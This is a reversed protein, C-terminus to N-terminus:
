DNDLVLQLVDENITAFVDFYFIGGGNDRCSKLYHNFGEFVDCEKNKVMSLLNGFNDYVIFKYGISQFFNITEISDLLDIENYNIDYEFYISPKFSEILEKNALIIDFDSGDTDIKILEISGPEILNEILMEDLSKMKIITDSEDKESQLLRATGNSRIVQYNTTPKRGKIYYNILKVNPISHINKRLYELYFSDGEICYITSKSFSRIYAATDGINAGIDIITGYEKDREIAQIISKLKKDYNRFSKQYEPLKHSSPLLIRYNGVHYQIDKYEVKKNVFKRIIGRLFKKM